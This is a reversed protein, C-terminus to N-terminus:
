VQKAMPPYNSPFLARRTEEDIEKKFAHGKGVARARAAAPRADVKQFWRKINPFAALPEAAGPLVVPARDVWGWASMDVISYDHGVIYERGALHDDLVQYHREVERRYRNVAYPLKEPAARQFHVAQGSFPGIGSAIFFLWSLM